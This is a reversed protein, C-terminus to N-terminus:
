KPPSKQCRPCHHTGRQGVVSRCIKARCRHCPEGSRGYVMPSYNGSKIVGDGFDTGQFEIAERLIARISEHLAVVKRRSITNTVTRPHIRARWLAEDAYINGIGAIYTQDLLFPKVARARTQFMDWLLEPLFEEGLPEVGLRHTVSEITPVLYMKGFKRTDNFRLEKGNKLSIRVRDHPANPIKHSVVDLSGSMRLHCLLFGNRPASFRVVVFKGRRSVNEIRAGALQRKFEEVTPSAITRSWAVHVAEVVCGSLRENLYRATTEVEPLEPM